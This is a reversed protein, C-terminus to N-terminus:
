VDSDGAGAVRGGARHRKSSQSDAVDKSGFAIGRKSSRIFAVLEKAEDSKSGAEIQETAEVITLESRYLIRYAEKIEKQADRSVGARRLGIRNVSEALAPRGGFIFFPPLDKNSVSLASMMALRGIRCFQHIGTFGSMIVGDAVECHGPLCAQNVLVVGNGVKCDHAVHSSAMFMCEDGIETAEGEKSARHIQCYERFV